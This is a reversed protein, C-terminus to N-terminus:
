TLIKVDAVPGYRREPLRVVGRTSPCPRVVWGVAEGQRRACTTDGSAM